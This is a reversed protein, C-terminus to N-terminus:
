SANALVEDIEALAMKAFPSKDGVATVFAKRTSALQARAEALKTELADIREWDETMAKEVDGINKAYVEHGSGDGPVVDLMIRRVDFEKGDPETPLVGCVDVVMMACNAVDAAHERIAELPGDMVAALALKELHYHVEQICESRGMRLWGERDGKHANAHLEKRMLALFPLLTDNYKTTNM